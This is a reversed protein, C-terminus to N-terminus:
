HTADRPLTKKEAARHDLRLLVAGGAMLGGSALLTLKTLAVGVLWSAGHLDLIGSLALGAAIGITAGLYLLLTGLRRM